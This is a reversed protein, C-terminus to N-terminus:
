LRLLVVPARAVWCCCVTWCCVTRTVGTPALVLCSLALLSSLRYAGITSVIDPLTADASRSNRPWAAASGCAARYLQSMRMTHVVRRSAASARGLDRLRLRLADASDYLKNAGYGRGAGDAQPRRALGAGTQVEPSHLVRAGVAGRAALAPRCPCTTGPSHSASLRAGAGASIMVLVGLSEVTARRCRM